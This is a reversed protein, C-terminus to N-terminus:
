PLAITGLWFYSALTPFCIWFLDLFLLRPSVIFYISFLYTAFVPSCLFCLVPLFMVFFCFWCQLFVLWINSFYLWLFILLFRHCLFALFSSTFGCFYALFLLLFQQCLFTPFLAVLFFVLSLSVGLCLCSVLNLISFFCLGSFCDYLGFFFLVLFSFWLFVLIMLLFCLWFCLLLQFLSLCSDFGVISWLCSVTALSFIMLLHSVGLFPFFGNVLLHLCNCNLRKSHAIDDTSYSFVSSLCTQFSVLSLLQIGSTQIVVTHRQTTAKELM